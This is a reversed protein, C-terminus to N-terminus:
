NFSFECRKKMEDNNKHQTKKRERRQNRKQHENTICNMILDAQQALAHLSYLADFSQHLSYKTLNNIHISESTSCTRQSTFPFRSHRLFDNSIWDRETQIKINKKLNFNLNWTACCFSRAFFFDCDDWGVNVLKLKIKWKNKTKM